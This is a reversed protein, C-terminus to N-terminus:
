RGPVRAVRRAFQRADELVSAGYYDPDELLNKLAEGPESYPDFCAECYLYSDLVFGRNRPIPSNCLDCVAIPRDESKWWEEALYRGYIRTARVDAASVGTGSGLGIKAERMSVSRLDTQVLYHPYHESLESSITGAEDRVKSAINKTEIWIGLSRLLYVLVLQGLIMFAIGPQGHVLLAIFGLPVSGIGFMLVGFVVAASGWLDNLYVTATLWTSVGLVYSILVTGTGCFKRARKAILAILLLAPLVFLCAAALFNAVGALFNLALFFVALAGIVVVLYVACGGFVGVSSLISKLKAHVVVGKGGCQDEIAFTV